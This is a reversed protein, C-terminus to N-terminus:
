WLLLGSYDTPIALCVLMFKIRNNNNNDNNDGEHLNSVYSSQKKKLSRHAIFFVFQCLM